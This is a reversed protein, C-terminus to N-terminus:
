NEGSAADEQPAKIEPNLLGESVDEDKPSSLTDTHPAEAAGTKAKVKYIQAVTTTEDPIVNYIHIEIDYMKIKKGDEERNTFYKEIPLREAVKNYVADCLADIVDANLDDLTNVNIRLTASILNVSVSEAEEYTLNDQLWALDDSSIAPDIENEFRDSVVPVGANEKTGIIIYLLIICPIVVVALGIWLIWNPKKKKSPTKPKTEKKVTKKPTSTTDKSATVKKTEKVTNTEKESM